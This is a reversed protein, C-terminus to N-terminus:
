TERPTTWKLVANILTKREVPRCIFDDMGVEWCREKDSQLGSATIAVIPLARTREDFLDEDNRIRRTAEYGDVVPMMCDMFIVDPRRELSTKCLYDLAEQGNCATAVGYGSTLVFRSNIKRNIANDDVILVFPGTRTKFLEASQLLQRQSQTTGKELPETTAISTRRRSQVREPLQFVTQTDNGSTRQVKFPLYFTVKTGKGLTSQITMYGGMLEVLEQCISLGLGTGGYIRATSTDAQSFPQFLIKRVDDAIGIGSDQVTFQVNSTGSRADQTATVDLRVSGQNTFKLSNGVLNTLVQRVRHPDGLYTTEVSADIAWKLDLHKKEAQIRMPVITERITERLCFPICEISLQGSSIKSLDLIDNVLALLFQASSRIDRVLGAQDETIESDCLLEGLGIIGSIPTRIEHSMNALFRSKLASAELAAKEDLALRANELRLASQVVQDTIEFTLALATEATTDKDVIARHEAVLITRFSREGETHEIVPTFERGALIAHITVVLEEHSCHRSGQSKAGIQDTELSAPLEPPDWQLGGERIFLSNRRDIGWLLVDTRSILTLMSQRRRDVEQRAIVADNIDMMSAYWCIAQGSADEYVQARILFWYYEGTAAEQYRAEHTWNQRKNQLVDAWANTMKVVDDPHIASIWGSDLSDKKSLGTFQFWFDSLQLVQGELNLVAMIFPILSNIQRASPIQHQTERKENRSSTENTFILGNAPAESEIDPYFPGGTTPSPIKGLLPTFPRKLVVLFLGLSFWHVSARAKIKFSEGAGGAKRSATKVLYVDSEISSQKRAGLEWFADSSQLMDYDLSPDEVGPDDHGLNACANVAASLIQDWTWLAPSGNPAVAINLLSINKGIVSSQTHSDSSPPTCVLRSGGSNIAIITGTADLVLAPDLQYRLVSQARDGCEGSTTPDGPDM